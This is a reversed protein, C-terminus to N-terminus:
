CGDGSFTTIVAPGLGGKSDMPKYSMKATGFHLSVSDVPTEGSGSAQYSSVLISTLEITLYPQPSESGSQVFTLTGKPIAKGTVMNTIIAPTSKDLIKMVAIDSACMKSAARSMGPGNAIPRTLGFSWSLVEIEGKHDKHTSEGEIGDLKLFIDSAAQVATPAAIVACAASITLYKALLPRQMKNM